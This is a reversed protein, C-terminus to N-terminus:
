AIADQNTRNPRTYRARVQRLNEEYLSRYAQAITGEGTLKLSLLMSAYYRIVVLVDGPIDIVFDNTESVSPVQRVHFMLADQGETTTPYPNFAYKRHGVRTYYQVCSYPEATDYSALPERGAYFRHEDLYVLPMENRRVISVEVVNDPVTAVETSWSSANIVDKLFFWHHHTTVNSIADRICRAAIIGQRNTEVSTVPDAGVNYLIENATELMTAM